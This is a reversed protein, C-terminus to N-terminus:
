SNLYKMNPFAARGQYLDAIVPAKQKLLGIRPFNTVKIVLSSFVFTSKIV